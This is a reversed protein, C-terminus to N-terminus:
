EIRGKDLNSLLTNHRANDLIADFDGTIVATRARGRGNVAERDDVIYGPGAGEAIREGAEHLLDKVEPLTRLERFVNRKWKIQVRRRAM